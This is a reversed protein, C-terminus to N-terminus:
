GSSGFGSSGRDDGSPPLEGVLARVVDPVGLVLLQAIRQGREIAVPEDGSNYLIVALEGRYGSDILGPSNLVTLGHKLALGSRPLILGCHGEPVAVAFGTPVLLRCGPEIVVDLRSPLDAAADGARIRAPPTLGDDLQLLPVSLVSCLTAATKEGALATAQRCLARGASTRVL